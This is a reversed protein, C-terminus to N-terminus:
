QNKTDTDAGTRINDQLFRAFSPMRTLLGEAMKRSILQVVFDFSAFCKTGGVDADANTGAGRM